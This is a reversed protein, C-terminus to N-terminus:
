SEVVKRAGAWFGALSVADPVADPDLGADRCAKEWDGDARAEVFVDRVLAESGDFAPQADWANFLEPLTQISESGEILTVLGAKFAADRAQLRLMAHTTSAVIEQPSLPVV